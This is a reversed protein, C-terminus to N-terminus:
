AMVTHVLSVRVNPIYIKRGLHTPGRSIGHLPQMKLRHFLLKICTTSFGQPNTTFRLHIERKANVIYRKKDELSYAMITYLDIASNSM